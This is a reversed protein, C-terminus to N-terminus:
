EYLKRNNEAARHTDSVMDRGKQIEERSREREREREGGGKQLNRMSEFSNQFTVLNKNKTFRNEDIKMKRM